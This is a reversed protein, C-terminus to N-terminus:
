RCFRNYPLTEETPHNSRRLNIDHEDIDEDRIEGFVTLDSTDVKAGNNEQKRKEEKKTEAKRANCAIKMKIPFNDLNWGGAVPTGAIEIQKDTVHRFMAIAQNAVLVVLGQRNEWKPTGSKGDMFRQTMKFLRLIQEALKGPYEMLGRMGYAELLQSAVNTRNQRTDLFQLLDNVMIAMTRAIPGKTSPHDNDYALTLIQKTMKPVGGMIMSIV